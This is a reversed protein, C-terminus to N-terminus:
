RASRGVTVFRKPASAGQGKPRYRVIFTKAGTADIRAGYGKLETDWIFYVRPNPEALDVSRKTLKVGKKRWTGAEEQKQNSKSLSWRTVMVSPVHRFLQPM